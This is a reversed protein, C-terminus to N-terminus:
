ALFKVIDKSLASFISVVTVLAFSNLFNASLIIVKPFFFVRAELLFANAKKLFSSTTALNNLSIAGLYAFPPTDLIM